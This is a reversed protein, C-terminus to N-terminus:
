IRIKEAYLVTVHVVDQSFPVDRTVEFNWRHVIIIYLIVVRCFTTAVSIGAGHSQRVLQSVSHHHSITM